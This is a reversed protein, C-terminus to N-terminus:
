IAEIVFPTLVIALLFLVLGGAFVLRKTKTDLIIEGQRAKDAPYTFSQDQKRAM